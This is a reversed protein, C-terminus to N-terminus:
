FVAKNEFRQSLFSFEEDKYNESEIRGIFVKVSSFLKLIELSFKRCSGDSM